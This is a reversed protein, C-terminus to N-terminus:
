AASATKAGPSFYTPEIEDVPLAKGVLYGQMETCGEARVLELQKTTEVGEAMITLHLARGLAIGSRVIAVADEGGDELGRIFSRDIKIKDIPFARLYSLSSHSTGFDDLAVRVGMARLTQLMAHVAGDDVALVSETIELVLRHPALGTAGLALIVTEAFNRLKLQVASINVAIELHPPWSQATACARRLVWEGIRVIMGTEEANPIFEMPALAGRLPHRWHLLAEFGFVEETALNVQPQYHLELEGNALAARLDREAEHRTQAATSMGPSYFCHVGRGQRKAQYLALDAHRLLIEPDSGDRPSIAIGVSTGIIARHGALSYPAGIADIIRNALLRADEEEVAGYQVIAFEDGGIRAALDAKGICQALRAAVERLLIDGAAHGLTDNVSKFGDLDICLIGYSNKNM